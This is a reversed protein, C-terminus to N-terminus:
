PYLKALFSGSISPRYSRVIAPVIGLGGALSHGSANGAGVRGSRDGVYRSLSSCFVRGRASVGRFRPRPCGQWWLPTDFTEQINDSLSTFIDAARWVAFRNEPLTGDVMSVRIAKAFRGAGDRFAKLVAPGGAWGSLILHVKQGTMEAALSLGRFMPFPHAKAHHSLRGVFLVAIEDQAIGLRRRQAAREEPAAPRFKSVDVGLPILELGIRLQLNGGHRQRLYEAYADTVARVMDIVARSTCILRDFPEFPATLLSRLAEVAHVSCLTHTVGCLAYGPVPRHQRAWAFRVDPPCPFHLIQAPPDPLFGSSFDKVEFLRLRRQKDRSSPHSRCTELLSRGSAQNPVLAALESWTGYSLYADLFERGAVQRGMLGAPAGPRPKAPRKLTEVYGSDDYYLAIKAPHITM